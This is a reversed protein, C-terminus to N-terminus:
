ARQTAAERDALSPDLGAHYREAVPKVALNCLLGIV